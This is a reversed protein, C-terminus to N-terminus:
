CSFTVYPFGCFLEEVLPGIVLPPPPSDPGSLFFIKKELSRFVSFFYSLFKKAAERPMSINVQIGLGHLQIDQPVPAEARGVLTM